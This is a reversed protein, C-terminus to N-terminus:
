RDWHTRVEQNVMQVSASRVNILQEGDGPLWTSRGPVAGHRLGLASTLPDWENEMSLVRRAHISPYLVHLQGVLRRIYIQMFYVLRYNICIVNMWRLAAPKRFKTWVILSPLTSWIHILIRCQMKGAECIKLFMNSHTTWSYFSITHPGAAMNFDASCLHLGAWEGTRENMRQTSIRRRRVQHTQVPLRTERLQVCRPCSTPITQDNGSRGMVWRPLVRRMRMVWWASRLVNDDGTVILTSFRMRLRVSVRTYKM